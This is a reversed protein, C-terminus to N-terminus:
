NGEAEEVTVDMGSLERVKDAVRKIAAASKGRLESETFLSKDDNDVIGYAALRINHGEMRVSTTTKGTKDVRVDMLSQEYQSQDWASLARVRVSGGWEPIEVIERVRDDVGLIQERDLLMLETNQPQESM